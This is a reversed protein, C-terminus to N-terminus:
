AAAEGSELVVVDNRDSESEIDKTFIMDSEKVVLSVERERQRKEAALSSAKCENCRASASYKVTAKNALWMSLDDPATKVTNCGCCKWQHMPRRVVCYNCRGRDGSRRALDWENLTFEFEWRKVNCTECTRFDLCEECM